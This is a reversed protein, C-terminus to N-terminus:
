SSAWAPMEHPSRPDSDPVDTSAVGASHIELDVRWWLPWGNFRVFVLLSNTRVGPDVRLSEVRGVRQLILRLSQLQGPAQGPPVTWRIDIDSFVDAEEPTAMSGILCVEEAPSAAALVDLLLAAADERSAPVTANVVAL